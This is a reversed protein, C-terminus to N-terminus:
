VDALRCRRRQSLREPSAAPLADSLGEATISSYVRAPLAPCSGAMPSLGTLWRHLPPSPSLRAPAESRQGPPPEPLGRQHLQPPTRAGARGRQWLGPTGVRRLGHGGRVLAGHHGPPHGPAAAPHEPSVPGYGLGVPPQLHGPDPSPGVTGGSCSCVSVPSWGAPIGGGLSREKAAFPVFLFNHSSPNVLLTVKKKIKLSIEFHFNKMKLKGTFEEREGWGPCTLLWTSNGRSLFDGGRGKGRANELFFFFSLIFSSSPSAWRFLNARLLTM